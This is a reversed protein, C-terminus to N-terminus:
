YDLYKGNLVNDLFHDTKIFSLIADLKVVDILMMEGQELRQDLIKDFTQKAILLKDYTTKAIKKFMSSKFFNAREDIEIDAKPSNLISVEWLSKNNDFALSYGM